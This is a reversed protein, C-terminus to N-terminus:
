RLLRYFIILIYAWYGVYKKLVLPYVRNFVIDPTTTSFGSNSYVCIRKKLHHIDAKNHWFLKINLFHDAQVKFSKLYLGNDLFCNKHYLLGQHCLNKYLLKFKSPYGSYVGLNRYLVDCSLVMPIYEKIYNYAFIFDETIMDDKGIFYFYDGTAVKVGDNMASYIGNSSEKIVIISPYKQTFKLYYEETCIIILEYHCNKLICSIKSICSCVESDFKYCPLIISLIM